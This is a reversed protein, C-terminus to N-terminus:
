ESEKPRSRSALALSAGAARAQGLPGGLFDGLIRRAVAASAGSLGDDYGPVVTVTALAPLMLSLFVSGAPWTTRLAPLNPGPDEQYVQDAALKSPLV